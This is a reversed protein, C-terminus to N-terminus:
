EMRDFKGNVDYRAGGSRWPRRARAAYHSVRPRIQPRNAGVEYDSAIRLMLDTYEGKAEQSRSDDRKDRYWHYLAHFLIVHRYRLPVIPEDDAASLSAQATGSSSVALNSTIYTYPVTMAISSPQNFRVRRIPTTNGSPAYDVICAVRPRGPTVNMPYRRRFETRPILDISCEDSFSQADVPRLFDSALDYEDEFYVYSSGSDVDDETFKSSLTISTAGGVSSVVYPVRAGNITVKGNARANAISFDDTTAWATSDGTLTTSGKSISVTGTTYTPRIILRAQREAWPLRYDFGVHMDHLAINVYRKAQTETASVGTTVRVRNQLDTYLDSFDTLQSTSSM